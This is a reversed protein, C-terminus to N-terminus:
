KEIKRLRFVTENLPLILYEGDYFLHYETPFSHDAGKSIEIGKIKIAILTDATIGFDQKTSTFNNWLYSQADVRKFSYHTQRLTDTLMMATTRDLCIRRKLLEKLQKDNYISEEKDL